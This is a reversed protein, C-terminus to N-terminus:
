SYAALALTTGGVQHSRAALWLFATKSQPGDAVRVRARASPLYFFHAARAWNVRQTMAHLIRRCSRLADQGLHSAPRLDHGRRSQNGRPYIELLTGSGLSRRPHVGLSRLIEQVRHLSESLVAPVKYQLAPMSATNRDM